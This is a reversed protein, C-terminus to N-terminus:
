RQVLTPWIFILSHEVAWKDARPPLLFDFIRAGADADGGRFINGNM